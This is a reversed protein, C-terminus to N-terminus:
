KEGMGTLIKTLREQKIKGQMELEMMSVLELRLAWATVQTGRSYGLKRMGVTRLAEATKSSCGMLDAMERSNFGKATWVLAEQQRRTLKKSKIYTAM